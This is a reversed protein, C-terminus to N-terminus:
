SKGLALDLAWCGRVHTQKPDRLHNLLEDSDCGADQLADALIPMREFAKEEYIGSALLRVDTTLWAPDLSVPRFPNGVIEMLLDAQAQPEAKRRKNGCLEQSHEAAHVASALANIQTNYELMEADTARGEAYRETTEVALRVGRELSWPRVRGLCAVTFLWLKRDSAKGRLCELMPTPDTASLWDAETMAVERGGTAAKRAAPNLGATKHLV